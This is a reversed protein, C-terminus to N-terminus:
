FDFNETLFLNILNQARQAAARQVRDDRQGEGGTHAAALQESQGPDVDIPVAALDPNLARDLLSLGGEPYLRWLRCMAAAGDRQRGGDDRIQPRVTRCLLLEPQAEAE